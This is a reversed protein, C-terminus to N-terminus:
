RYMTQNETGPAYADPDVWCNIISCGGYARARELAPRIENPDRVAEGYIGLMDAFKEFDVDGLYNGVSGREPGYKQIQGFRIQNMYSNNGIVAIYPLNFRIATQIDFATMAFAGDGFLTLVEHDPHALKAAMAFGTGVGLTGLPGPDM